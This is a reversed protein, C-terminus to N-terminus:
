MQNYIISSAVEDMGRLGLMALTISLEDAFVECLDALGQEGNAAMAYLLPRGLMVFDAGTAYAKIIDEGSRLGSDYIVPFSPGVAERVAALASIAPMVSELQRGGHSSVQVADVGTAKALLADQASLVGKVVLKGPWRERLRALFEWDAGARSRSRDFEGNDGGFNALGPPGSVLTKLSWRPHMAFDFFQSPGMRFPMKFGRRLERPRRGVEPVDVTLTLVKYGSAEARDLLSYSSAADGSYYLQFWAHGEAAEIMSELSTSAATSVGVPIAHKAALRALMLDAGPTSLNCMGMPAIGFPLETIQNFVSGAISRHEVNQLIKPELRINRILQRNLSEGLGEGAAGDFYDFVMWPLRKKAIQKADEACYISNPALLM